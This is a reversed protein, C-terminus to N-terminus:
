DNEGGGESRPQSTKASAPPSTEQQVGIVREIRDLLADDMGESAKDLLLDIYRQKADTTPPAPAPPPTKAAATKKAKRPKRTATGNGGGGGGSSKFHSSLPIKAHGAAILFFAVAKRLTSGGIGYAKFKEELQSPTANDGLTLMEGYSNRVIEGIIKERDADDAVLRKFLETPKDNSDILGLYRCALLFQSQTAGSKTSLVSRDIQAPLGKGKLEDVINIFTTWGIYPPKLEKAATESM